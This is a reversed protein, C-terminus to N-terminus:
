HYTGAGAGKPVDNVHEGQGGEGGHEHFVLLNLNGNPEKSRVLAFNDESHGDDYLVSEVTKPM